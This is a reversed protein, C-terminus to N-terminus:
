LSAQLKMLYALLTAEQDIHSKRKLEYECEQLLAFLPAYDKIGIALQIREEQIAKPLQYGLLEKSDVRGYLRMSTNFLFLQHLFHQLGLLFPIPPLLQIKPLLRALPEKRLIAKYLQEMSATTTPAVLRDIEKTGVQRYVALKGIEAAALLLDGEFLHLLHILAGEDITLGVERALARLENIAEHEKPPFFRVALARREKSFLNAIRKGESSPLQYILYSAARTATLHLLSQIEKAPLPREGKIILLNVPQFLSPQLLYDHAVEPDFEDYFLRLPQVGPAIHEQLLRAYRDIFYPENGWLLFAKAPLDGKSLLRDLDSRYM